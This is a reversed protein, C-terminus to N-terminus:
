TFIETKILYGVGNRGSLPQVIQGQLPARNPIQFLLIQASGKAAQHLDHPSKLKYTRDHTRESLESLRSPSPHM